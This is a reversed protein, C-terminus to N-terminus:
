PTLIPLPTIEACLFSLTLLISLASLHSLTQTQTHPHSPPYLTNPSWDASFFFHCCYFLLLTPRELSCRWVNIEWVRSRVYGPHQFCGTGMSPSLSHPFVPVLSPNSPFFFYIYMYIYMCINHSLSFLFLFRLVTANQFYSASASPFILFTFTFNLNSPNTCTFTSKCHAYGHQLWWVNLDVVM